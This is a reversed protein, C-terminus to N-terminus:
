PLAEIERLLEADVGTVAEGPAVIALDDNLSPIPEGPLNSPPRDPHIASVRCALRRPHDPDPGTLDILKM